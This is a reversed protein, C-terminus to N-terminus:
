WLAEGILGKLYPLIKKRLEIPYRREGTFVGVLIECGAQGYKELLLNRVKRQHYFLDAAFQATKLEPLISRNLETHYADMAQQPDGFHERVAKGALSGSLIANSIGEATLPDALGAADGTLFIHKQALPGSRYSVPIQYGHAEERVIKNLKLTQLYELYYARLNVKRRKFLAVGISLHNKKPFCWGYGNPIADVDFRVATSLRQFDAPDVLVEYELAPILQRDDEWGVLKATPSYVGDAAILYRTQFVGKSTQLVISDAYSIAHLETEDWVEVGHKKAQDVLLKDFKDRMVMTIIPQDRSSQFHHPSGSFAVQVARFEREIVPDLDVPLMDRGRYVLGGGCTKYRPLSEKELIAVRLGSQVAEWAAMAGAPGSGVVIIDFTTM